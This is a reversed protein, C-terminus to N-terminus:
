DTRTPPSAGRLLRHGGADMEILTEQSDGPRNLPHPIIGVSMALAAVETRSHLGTNHLLAQLRQRVASISIGLRDAIIKDQLGMGILEILELQKETIQNRETFEMAFHQMYRQHGMLAATNLTWGHAKIIEIMQRKSHDGSFTIIAAQPPTYLRLPVSFGARIGREAAKRLVAVRAEPVHRYEDVFELGVAIPTLYHMAHSRFYSWKQVDPDENVDQLWHSDYSTRIFLTRRWDRLNSASIFDVFPLNLDRGLGVILAWVDTSHATQELRTVFGQLLEPM